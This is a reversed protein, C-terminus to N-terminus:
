SSCGFGEAFFMGVDALANPLTGSAPLLEGDGHARDKSIGVNGQALPQQRKMKEAGALLANAGVLKVSHELDGVPACPEHSMLESRLSDPVTTMLERSQNFNIFGIHAPLATMRLRHLHLRSLAHVVAFLCKVEVGWAAVKALELYMRFSRPGSNCWRRGPLWAWFISCRRPGTM